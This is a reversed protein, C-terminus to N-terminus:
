LAGLGFIGTVIWKRKRSMQLGWIMPLPLLVTVLDLFIDTGAITWYLVTYDVPTGVDTWNYSIPWAQFLTAFFFAVTWLIVCVGVVM